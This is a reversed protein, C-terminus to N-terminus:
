AAKKITAALKELEVMMMSITQVELNLEDASVKTENNIAEVSVVCKDLIESIETSSKGSIEALKGIEDVVVFFGKASEGAKAAEVSANFSLLKTQFVAENIARNKEKITSIMDTMEGFNQSSNTVSFEKLRMVAVSLTKKLYANLLLSTLFILLVLGASMSYFFYIREELIKAERDFRIKLIERFGSISDNFETSFNQYIQNHVLRKALDLNPVGKNNYGGNVDRYLGKVAHIAEAETSILEASFKFAEELKKLENHTLGLTKSRASFNKQVEKYKEEWKSEGTVVYLRSLRTQDDSSKQFDESFELSTLRYKNLQNVEFSTWLSGGISGLLLVLLITNIKSINRYDFIKPM